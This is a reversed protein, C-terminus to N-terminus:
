GWLLRKVKKTKLTKTHAIADMYKKKTRDIRQLCKDFVKTTNCGLIFGSGEPSYATLFKRVGPDLACMREMDMCRVHQREEGEVEVTRSEMLTFRGYRFCIRSDRAFADDSLVGKRIKIERFVYRNEKQEKEIRKKNDTRKREEAREEETKQKLKGGNKKKEDDKMRKDEEKKLKEEEKKRAEMEEKKKYFGTRSVAISQRIDVDKYLSFSRESLLQFSRKEIYISDCVWGRKSKFKPNFKLKRKFSRANPYKKALELHKELKTKQADLVDVLSYVAQQRPVKPTRLLLHWTKHKCIGDDSVFKNQLLTRMEFKNFDNLLYEEVYWGMKLVYQLAINYTKRCDMFMRKM